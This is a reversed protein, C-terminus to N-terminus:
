SNVVEAPRRFASRDLLDRVESDCTQEFNLYWLGVAEFPEPTEPCIVEDAAERLQRCASASGVPVAVIIRGALQQRLAEVAARMTSGTALGDDVLIITKGRVQLPARTGRYERSRRIIEQEERAAVTNIVSDPIRLQRTAEENLVIVGGSAIAGMAYEEHGPVGLKRVIFVDLPADLAEAVEFGVPVGGRPLALVVVDSRGAFKQLSEALRKGAESRNRYIM